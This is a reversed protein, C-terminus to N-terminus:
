KVEISFQADLARQIRAHTEELHARTFDDLAERELAGEVRGDIRKLHLRSLSRADEPVEPGQDLM